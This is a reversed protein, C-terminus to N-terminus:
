PSLIPPLLTLCPSSWLDEERPSLVPDGFCMTPVWSSIHFHLEEEGVELHGEEGVVSRAPMPLYLRRLRRRAFGKMALRIQLCKM